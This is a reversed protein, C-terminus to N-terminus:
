DANLNVNTMSIKMIRDLETPDADGIAPMLGNIAGIRLDKVSSVQLEVPLTRLFKFYNRIHQHKKAVENGKPKAAPIFADHHTKFWYTVASMSAWQRAPETLPIKTVQGNLIVDEPNVANYETQFALLTNAAGEGIISTALLRLTEIDTDGGQDLQRSLDFLTRPTPQALLGKRFPPLLVDPHARVAGLLEPRLKNTIAHEVFDDLNLQINVWALRNAMPGSMRFAYAGHEEGNGCAAVVTRASLATQHVNRDLVIGLGANQVAPPSCTIEDFLLVSYENHDTPFYDPIGFTTKGDPVPFGFGKVETPDMLPLRVDILKVHLRADIRKRLVDRCIKCNFIGNHWAPCGPAHQLPDFNKRKCADCQLSKDAYRRYQIECFDRVMESKGIGPQAIFIPAIGQPVLALRELVTMAESIRM